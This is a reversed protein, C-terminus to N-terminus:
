AGKMIQEFEKSVYRLSSIYLPFQDPTIKKWTGRLSYKLEDERIRYKDGVSLYLVKREELYLISSALLSRNKRNKIIDFEGDKYTVLYYAM